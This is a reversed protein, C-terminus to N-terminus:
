AAEGRLSPKAKLARGHAIRACNVAYNERFGDPPHSAADAIAAVLQEGWYALWGKHDRTNKPPQIM